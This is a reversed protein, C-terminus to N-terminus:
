KGAETAFPAIYGDDYEGSILRERLSELRRCGLALLQDAVDALETHLQEQLGPIKNAHRLRQHILRRRQALALIAETTTSSNM